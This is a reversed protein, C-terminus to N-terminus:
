GRTPEVDVRFVLSFAMRAANRVDAPAHGGPELVVAALAHGDLGPAPDDICVVRCGSFSIRALESATTAAVGTNLDSLADLARGYKERIVSLQLRFASGRLTGDAKAVKKSIGRWIREAEAFEPDVQRVPRWAVCFGSFGTRM